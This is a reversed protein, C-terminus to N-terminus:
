ESLTRKGSKTKQGLGMKGVIDEQVGVRRKGEPRHEKEL